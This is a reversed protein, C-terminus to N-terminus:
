YNLKPIASTQSYYEEVQHVEYTGKELAGRKINEIEVFSVWIKAIQGYHHRGKEFLTELIVLRQESTSMVTHPIHYISLRLPTTPLCENFFQQIHHSFLPESFCEESCAPNPKQSPDYADM